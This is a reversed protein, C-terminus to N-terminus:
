STPRAAIADRVMTLLDKNRFPKRLLGLRGPFADDHRGASEAFGTAIIVRAQPDFDRIGAFCEAGGMGPMAVDLIVLDIGAGRQRYIELGEAGDGADLVVYGASELMARLVQRVLEEDDVVLVTMEGPPLEGLVPPTAPEEDVVPLRIAFVSGQGEESRVDIEGGHELVTGYVAALGLGTGKGASKTTFYPEFIRSRLEPAIGMGTDSVEIVIHHTGDLDEGDSTIIGLTGSESMADRANVALNLIASQVQAPDGRLWSRSAGAETVLNIRPDLTHLLLARVSDIEAHVDFVEVSRRGKRSFALLKETLEGARVAARSIGAAFEYEETKPDMQMTLLDAYGLIGGLMNNFDHAVGGALQGIADMRQSHRLQDEIRYQETVDRFVLVVGVIEGAANRIPAGSDAIQCSTGDRAVLNTHNALGVVEGKALVKTVPDDCPEGTEASEIRFVETLPLGTAESRDWGTLEEAVPNMRVIRGAADTAIVADGISELTIRLDIERRRADREAHLRLVEATARGSFVEMLRLIRREEAPSLPREDLLIMIGLPYGNTDFLPMGIYSNVGMDQLMTDEPFRQQVEDSYVCPQKGIVTACPTGALDYTINPAPQGRGWVALTSVTPLGHTDLEGVVAFDMGVAQALHRVFASFFEGGVTAQTGRVISDVLEATERHETIDVHIGVMRLPEGGKNRDMIRGKASLWMWEGDARLFRFEVNYDASRGALHSELRDIVADVDDPHIRQRWEEYTPPFAGPEYGSILYYQDDYVTEGSVINWDWVGVNAAELAISMREYRFDQNDTVADGGGTRERRTM